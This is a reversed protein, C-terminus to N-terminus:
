RRQASGTVAPSARQDGGFLFSMTRYISPHPLRHRPIGPAGARRCGNRRSGTKSGPCDECGQPTRSGRGRPEGPEGRATRAAAPGRAPEACLCYVSSASKNFCVKQSPVPLLKKPGNMPKHNHCCLPAAPDSNQGKFRQQGHTLGTAGTRCQRIRHLM